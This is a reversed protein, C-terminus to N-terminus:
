VHRDLMTNHASFSSYCQPLSGIWGPLDSQKLCDLEHKNVM